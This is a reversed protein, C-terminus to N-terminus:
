FEFFLKVDVDLAKAIDFITKATVNVRGKEIHILYSKDIDCELGLENSTLGKQKRIRTINAGVKKLYTDYNM